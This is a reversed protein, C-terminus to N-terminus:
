RAATSNLASIASRPHSLMVPAPSPIMRAPCSPGPRSDLKPSAIRSGNSVVAFSMMKPSSFSIWKRYKKVRFSINTLWLLATM